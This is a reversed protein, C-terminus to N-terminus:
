WPGADIQTIANVGIVGAALQTRAIMGRTLNKYDRQFIGYSTPIATQL